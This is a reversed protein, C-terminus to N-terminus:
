AHALRVLDGDRVAEGLEILRSVTGTWFRRRGFKWGNNDMVLPGRKLAARCTAMTDSRRPYRASHPKM